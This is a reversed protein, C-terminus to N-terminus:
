KGMSVLNAFLRYAGPVGAPLERFFSLGTYIFVGKGYHAVLLGSTLPAEGADSCALLSVYNSADWESAFDLGREQVWGDFDAPGIRNPTTFAPSGPVLLTVPATEDTVRYRMLDRSLKLPYPGLQPVLLSNPTNYQEVVTGGAKVYDFLASVRPALDTRVNFARVGIVVADFGGLKEPTLDAGTLETVAYGMEGLCADVTDGAGPLYGISRGRIALDVSSVRLRAPPQLLLPPIHRYSILRLGSRYQAGGIDARAAITGSGTALPATVLFYLRTEDGASSLHFDLRAPSVGWGAPAELSVSGAAGSRSAVVDVAVSRGAGPAFIAVSTAFGLSAPPIVDLRRRFEGRAPDRALEVAEDSVALTQGGVEFVDEVPFAPPNEPTGILSPDDVRFMGPTGQERLWYPQSLPADAPLTRTEDLAATEGPKLDVACAAAAGTGPYRVAVWRVPIASAVAATHHMALEEGPVFEPRPVSTEVSLGLCNQLIRDLLRRKEDVVPDAALSSAARRLALVAPVSRAPDAPDFQAIVEGALRGIDAGGPVRAWTTDVGDLIDGTMPEGALVVFHEVRPGSGASAVTFNAFGQTQHMSRSRGAVTAFTAGTVPDTGDIGMSVAGPPPGGGAGFNFVNWVIRRPQWPALPGLQEPFATPDGALRFAELALVSSATHHGHTNTPEPSFRTVIVDPRFVRIVRVIDSLVQQRDWKTLTERYDKSVGFDRARTFFQRGGDVRRAALLEQTRIAGLADGFEPGLVNQGGDGRTLSLYATRYSRGRALFAILQTNEDDPHAAVYLVSGMEQFSRLDQLIAAPPEAAGASSLLLVACAAAAFARWRVPAFPAPRTV